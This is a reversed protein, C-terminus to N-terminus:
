KVCTKGICYLGSCSFHLQIRQEFLAGPLSCLCSPQLTHKFNVPDLDQPSEGAPVSVIPCQTNIGGWGM